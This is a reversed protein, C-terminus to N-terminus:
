YTPSCEVPSGKVFPGRGVSYVFKGLSGRHGPCIDRDGAKIVSHDAEALAPM